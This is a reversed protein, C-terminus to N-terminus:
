CFPWLFYFIWPIFSIFPLGLVRPRLGTKDAHMRTPKEKSPKKKCCIQCFCRVLLYVAVFVGMLLLFAVFLIDLLYLQYFPLDLGRPRLHALSGKAQTYEVWDAAQQVPTRPHLRISKSIRAASARYSFLFLSSPNTRSIELRKVFSDPCM